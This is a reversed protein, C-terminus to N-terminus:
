IEENQGVKRGIQETCVEQGRHETTITERLSQRVVSVSLVGLNRLTPHTEIILCSDANQSEGPAAASRYQGTESAGESIDERLFM